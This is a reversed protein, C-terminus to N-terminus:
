IGCLYKKRKQNKPYDISPLRTILGDSKEAERIFSFLENIANGASMSKELKEKEKALTEYTKDNIQEYTFIPPTPAGFDIDGKETESLWVKEEPSREIRLARRLKM